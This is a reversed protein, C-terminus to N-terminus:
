DKKEYSEWELNGDNDKRPYFVASDKKPSGFTLTAGCDKCIVKLYHYEEGPYFARLLLNDSGCKGCKPIDQFIHRGEERVTEWITKGEFAFLHTEKGIKIKSIKQM